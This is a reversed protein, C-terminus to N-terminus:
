TIQTVRNYNRRDMELVRSYAPYDKEGIRYLWEIENKKKNHSLKYVKGILPFSIIYITIDKVPTRTAIEFLMLPIIGSISPIEIEVSEEKINIVYFIKPYLINLSCDIEEIISRSIAEPLGINITEM